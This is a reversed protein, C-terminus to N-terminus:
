HASHCSATSGSAAAVKHVEFEAALWECVFACFRRMADPSSLTHDAGSLEQVRSSERVTGWRGDTTWLDVFEAATLDEDSVMVLIHGRFAHLAERMRDIFSGSVSDTSPGGSWLVRGLKGGLDVLSSIVNVDGRLLTKWFERQLLRRPYYHWVYARAEGRETHVWPNLLVIAEVRPDTPAYMAAASAGDCLGLLVCRKLSPYCRYFVDIAARIDGDVADFGRFDGESDGMGSFDFRLVPHHDRCLVRAIEVFMRHSGVRYQPGGVLVIVGTTSSEAPEHLIGFLASSGSRFSVVSEFGSSM